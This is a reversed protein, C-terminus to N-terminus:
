RQRSAPSQVPELGVPGVDDHGAHHHQVLQHRDGPESRQRHALATNAMAQQDPLREPELLPASSDGASALLADAIARSNSVRPVKHQDGLKGAARMWRHFTGPPLAVLRPARMGLDGARKTRYDTNLTQLAVDLAAVFADGDVPRTRLEVLWDHGGRPEGPQPFRPAVTFEGVEVRTARGAALMAQEVEEVIVLAADYFIEEMKERVFETTPLHPVGRTFSREFLGSSGTLILGSVRAPYRLALELALHGGLSNGGLVAQPIELADLFTGVYHALGEISAEARAADLIPVELALTRYRPALAGLTSEWHDMEGMLGHLLVVPEGEGGELWRFNPHLANM